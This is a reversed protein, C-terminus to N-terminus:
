YPSSVQLPIAGKDEDARLYKAAYKPSHKDLKNGGLTGLCGNTDPVVRTSNNTV